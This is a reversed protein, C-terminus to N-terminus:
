SRLLQDCACSAAQYISLPSRQCGKCVTAENSRTGVEQGCLVETQRGTVDELLEAVATLVLYKRYCLSESSVTM